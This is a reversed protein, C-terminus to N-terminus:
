PRCKRLRLTCTTPETAFSSVDQLDHGKITIHIRQFHHQKILPIYYYLSEFGFRPVMRLVQLDQGRVVSTDCWDCFVFINNLWEDHKIDLLAAEWPGELYLTRPLEVIFDTPKNDPHIDLSDQSSLYLIM